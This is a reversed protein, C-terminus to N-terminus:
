SSLNFVCHKSGITITTRAIKKMRITYM